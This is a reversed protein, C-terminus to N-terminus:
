NETGKRFLDGLEEAIFHDEWHVRAGLGDFCADLERAFPCILLFADGFTACEDEACCTIEVAPGNTNYPSLSRSKWELQQRSAARFTQGAHTCVGFTSIAKSRVKCAYTRRVMVAIRNVGDSIAFNLVDSSRELQMALVDSCEKDLGYLALCPDDDRWRSVKAFDAREARLVIDQEDTILDLRHPAGLYGSSSAVSCAHSRSLAKRPCALQQAYLVLADSRVDDKEPLCEGTAHVGHGSHERVLLDHQADPGALM